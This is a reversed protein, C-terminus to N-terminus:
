EDIDNTINIVSGKPYRVPCGPKPVLADFKWRYTDNNDSVMKQIHQRINDLSIQFQSCRFYLFFIQLSSIKFLLFNASNLYNIKTNSAKDATELGLSSNCFRNWNKVRYLTQKWVTDSRFTKCYKSNQPVPNVKVHFPENSIYFLFAHMLPPM